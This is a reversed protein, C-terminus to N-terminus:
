RLTDSNNLILTSYIFLVDQGEFTVYSDIYDSVIYRIDILTIKKYGDLLLPALSSGFSDRFIILEKETAANPNEITMLPSAGWLFVDYGDMGSFKETAYVEGSTNTEYNYVVANEITENKLYRLTDPALPLAAQGYYVGYFPSLSYETYGSGLKFGMSSSLREVVKNLREQRWHTDTSYYDSANLCDSLEIKEMGQIRGDFLETMRQYDLSPYGNQAATFYNKDPIIAYYVKCGSLLRQNIANLKDAAKLVSNPRLPYELKYVSDGVLYIGNNDKQRLLNFQVWAKVTRFSERKPFQDLTYKDFKEMWKGSMVGDWTLTPFQELTRREAVSAADAPKLVCWLFGALLFAGLVGITIYNKIREKM